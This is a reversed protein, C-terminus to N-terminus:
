SMDIIALKARVLSQHAEWASQNSILQMLFFLDILLWQQRYSCTSTLKYLFGCEERWIFSFVAQIKRCSNTSQTDVILILGDRGISSSSLPELTWNANFKGVCQDCSSATCLSRGLVGPSRVLSGAVPDIKRNRLFSTSPSRPRHISSTDQAFCCIM